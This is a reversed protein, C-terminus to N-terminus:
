HTNNGYFLACLVNIEFNPAYKNQSSPTICKLKTSYHRSKDKLLQRLFM